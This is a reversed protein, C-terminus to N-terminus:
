PKANKVRKYLDSMKGLVASEPGCEHIVDAKTNQIIKIIDATTGEGYQCGEWQKALWNPCEAWVCIYPERGQAM